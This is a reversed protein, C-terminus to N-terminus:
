KPLRRLVINRGHVPNAQSDALVLGGPANAFFVVIALNLDTATAPHDFFLM